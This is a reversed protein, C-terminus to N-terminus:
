RILFFITSLVVPSSLIFCTFTRLKSYLVSSSILVALGSNVSTTFDATTLTVPTLSPHM